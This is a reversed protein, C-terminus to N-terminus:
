GGLGVGYKEVFKYVESNTNLEGDDDYPSDPFDGIEDNLVGNKAEITGYYSMGQECCALEFHLKPHALSAKELWAAPPNWPTEFAITVQKTEIDLTVNENNVDWKCGWNESQWGYWTPIGKEACEKREKEGISGRFM